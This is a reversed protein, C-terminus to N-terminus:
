GWVQIGCDVHATTTPHFCVPSYLVNTGCMRVTELEDTEKVKEISARYPSLYFFVGCTQLLLWAGLLRLNRTPSTHAHPCTRPIYPCPICTSFNLTRFPLTRPGVAKKRQTWHNLLNKSSVPIVATPTHKGVMAPTSEFRLDQLLLVDRYSAVSGSVWCCLALFM